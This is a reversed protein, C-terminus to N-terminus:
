WEVEPYGRGMVLVLGKKLRAALGPRDGEKTPLFRVPKGPEARRVAQCLWEGTV